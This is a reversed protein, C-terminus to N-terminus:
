EVTVAQQAATILDAAASALVNVDHRQVMLHHEAGGVPGTKGASVYAERDLHQLVEAQQLRKKSRWCCPSSFKM